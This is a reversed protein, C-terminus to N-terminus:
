EFEVGTIFGQIQAHNRDFTIVSLEQGVFKVKGRRLRIEIGNEDYDAIGKCGDVLAERNGFLEIRAGNDFISGSVGLMQEIIEGKRKM